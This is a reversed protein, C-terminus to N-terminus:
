VFLLKGNIVHNLKSTRSTSLILLSATIETNSIFGM